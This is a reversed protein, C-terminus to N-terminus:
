SARPWAVGGGCPRPPVIRAARRERFGVFALSRSRTRRTSPRSERCDRGPRRRTSCQRAQEQELTDAALPRARLAWERCLAVALAANERQHSGALGLPPVNGYSDLAPAHALPAQSLTAASIAVKSPTHRRAQPEFAFPPPARAGVDRARLELVAAAEPLQPVTFAPVGAKFIGAKEGAIAALTNGLVEMHDMGLASVGCVAPAPAANTADLRGGLGVELM